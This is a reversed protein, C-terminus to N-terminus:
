CPVFAPAQAPYPRPPIAYELGLASASDSASQSETQVNGSVYVAGGGITIGTGRQDGAGGFFTASQLTPGAQALALSATTLILLLSIEGCLLFKRAAKRCPSLSLFRDPQRNTM